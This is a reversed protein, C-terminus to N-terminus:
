DNTAIKILQAKQAETLSDVTAIILTNHEISKQSVSNDLSVNVEEPLKFMAGTSPDVILLGIFNAFFLNSVYWGDLNSSITFNKEAYGEKTFTIVYSQNQFFGSSASLNVIAPTTGSDVTKGNKDVIKYTAGAPDSSISVAYDSTSMISACGSLIVCTLALVLTQTITKMKKM